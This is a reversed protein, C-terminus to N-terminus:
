YKTAHTRDGHSIHFPDNTNLEFNEEDDQPLQQNQGQYNTDEQVLLEKV